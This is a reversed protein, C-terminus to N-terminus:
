AASHVQSRDSGRLCAIRQRLRVVRWAYGSEFLLPEAGSSRRHRVSLTRPVPCQLEHVPREVREFVEDGPVSGPEAGQPRRAPPGSRTDSATVVAARGSPERTNFLASACSGDATRGPAGSTPIQWIVGPSRMIRPSAEAVPRAWPGNLAADAEQSGSHADGTARPPLRAHPRRHLRSHLSDQPATTGPPTSAPWHRETTRTRGMSRKEGGGCFSFLSPSSSKKMGMSPYVILPGGGTRVDPGAAPGASKTLAVPHCGGAPVVSGWLRDPQGRSGCVTGTWLPRGGCMARGSCATSASPLGCSRM